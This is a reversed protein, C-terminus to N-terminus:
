GHSKIKDMLVKKLKQICKYKRKRLNEESITGLNLSIERMSKNDYYYMTLIEKCDQDSSQLADIIIQENENLGDLLGDFDFDEGRETIAEEYKVKSQSGSKKYWMNKGVAYMYTSLKTGEHLVFNGSAIKEYLLVIVNQEIEEADVDQGGNTKVFHKIPGTYNKYLFKFANRDRDKLAAILQQDNNYM